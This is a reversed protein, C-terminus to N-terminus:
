KCGEFDGIVSKMVANLNSSELCFFQGGRLWQSKQRNMGGFCSWPTTKAVAWKSHDQTRVWQITPDLRVRSIYEVSYFGPLSEHSLDAASNHRPCYSGNDGRWTEALLPSQLMGILGGGAGSDGFISTQKGATKFIGRVNTSGATFNAYHFFDASSAKSSQLKWLNPAM